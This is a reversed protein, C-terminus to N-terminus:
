LRDLVHATSRDDGDDPVNDRLQLYRTAFYVDLLGGSSYKLDVEGPRTGRERELLRRIRLTEGRLLDPDIERARDYITHCVETATEKAITASVGRLKVFALLEWVAATKQFYDVFVARPNASAGNKGYPRLRLDVRYLSGDRT